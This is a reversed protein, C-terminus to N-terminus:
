RKWGIGIRTSNPIFVIHNAEYVKFRKRINKKVNEIESKNLQEVSASYGRVLARDIYKDINEVPRRYQFEVEETHKFGATKLINVLQGEEGLCHRQPPPGEVQNLANAIAQRIIFFAPNDSYPGWVMYAVRGGFKIVRLAERAAEVKNPAFMLGFRCTVCDFSADRFSLSMMDTSACSFKEIGLYQARSLAVELMVSTLDCAVITGQGKLAVGVSIAPDGTGAAIDLIDDGPKIQANDVLFQDLTNDNPLGKVTTEIWASSRRNWHHQNTQTLVSM